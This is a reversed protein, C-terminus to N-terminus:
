RQFHIPLDVGGVRRERGRRPTVVGDKHSYGTGDHLGGEFLRQANHQQETCRGNGNCDQVYPPWSAVYVGAVLPVYYQQVAARRSLADFLAKRKAREPERRQAQALDRLAADDVFSLNRPSEPQYREYVFGDPIVYPREQFLLMHEYNRTTLTQLWAGYEKAVLHVSIGVGRPAAPVATDMQGKGAYLTDIIEQRNLAM